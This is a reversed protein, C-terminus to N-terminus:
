KPNLLKIKSEENLTGDRGVNQIFNVNAMKGIEISGLNHDLGLFQAGNITAWPLMKEFTISPYEKQICRMEELINLSHNSALSDTGLTCKVEKNIFTPIDALRREIYQNARPCFCWYLNSHIEEAIQIDAESTFTNHVLQLPKNQTFVSLYSPLSNQGTEKFDALSLGFKELMEAMAGDKMQYLRNESETEQNHICIPGQNAEAIALMLKESVSYPSHPVISAKLGEALFSSQIKKGHEMSEAAKAPDFAFLEVFNHFHIKSDKKTKLSQIGNCIDGVAVIGNEWMERDAKLIADAMVAESAQRFTQVDKIFAPLQNGEAVKGKLHSLELHCHANIFGPCLAGQFYEIEVGDIALDMGVAAIRNNEDIAIMGNAIPRDIATYLLDTKLLRQIM